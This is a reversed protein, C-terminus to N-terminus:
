SLSGILVVVMSVKEGGGRAGLWFGQAGEGVVGMCAHHQHHSHWIQSASAVRVNGINAVRFITQRRDGWIAEVGGMNRNGKGGGGRFGLLLIIGIPGYSPGIANSSGCITLVCSRPYTEQLPM